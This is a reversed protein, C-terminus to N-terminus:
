SYIPRTQSEKNNKEFLQEEFLKRYVANKIYLEEHTGQEVIRGGQLVILRSVGLMSSLRHSIVLSTRHVMLDKLAARILSESQSDVASTAEDLIIIKPNRLFARAISIMQKQGGSLQVGREGIYTSYGGPLKSIFEDANALKAACVIEDNAANVKGYCINELLTGTFLFPDQPVLCVTERLLELPISDINVGDILIQGHQPQYLRLLLSVLTSKGSGSKGVIGIAEGARVELNFESLTLSKDNRYSFNVNEFTIDGKVPKGRESLLITSPKCRVEEPTDLIQYIRQLSVFAVQLSTSFEFLGAAPGFLMGMYGSFGVLEGVSMTKNLIMYGAYAFIVIPGLGQVFGLITRSYQNTLWSDISKSIGIQSKENFKNVEYDEMGYTKVSHIGSLSEQLFGATKAWAERKEVEKERIKKNYLFQNIFYFPIIALSVLALRWNIAFVVFVGVVLSIISRAVEVIRVGLTSVIDEADQFLRSSMYGVQTNSFYSVPLRLLHRMVHSRLDQGVGLQFKMLVYGQALSILLRLVTAVVWAILLLMFFSTNNKQIAEDIAKMSIWPMPLSVILTLVMLSLAVRLLRNHPRFFPYFRKILSWDWKKSITQVDM